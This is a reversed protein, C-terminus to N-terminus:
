DKLFDQLFISVQLIRQSKFNSIQHLTKRIQGDWSENDKCQSTLNM